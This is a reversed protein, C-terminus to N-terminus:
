GGMQRGYGAPQQDCRMEVGVARRLGPGAHKVLDTERQAEELQHHHADPTLAAAAAQRPRCLQALYRLALHSPTAQMIHSGPLCPPLDIHSCPRAGRLGFGRGRGDGSAAQGNM